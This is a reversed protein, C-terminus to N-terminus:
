PQYSPPPPPPLHADNSTDAAGSGEIPFDGDLLAEDRDPCLADPQSVPATSMPDLPSELKM